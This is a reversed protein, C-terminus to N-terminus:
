LIMYKYNVSIIYVNYVKIVFILSKHNKKKIM